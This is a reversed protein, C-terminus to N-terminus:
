LKSEVKLERTVYGNPYFEKIAVRIELNIDLGIYTIGFGGEGLVDGVLYKGQLITLPKLQHTVHTNQSFPKRCHPCIGNIEETNETMCHPCIRNIDM